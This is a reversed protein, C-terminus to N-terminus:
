HAYDSGSTLPEVTASQLAAPTWCRIRGRDEGFGLLIILQGNIVGLIAKALTEGPAYCFIQDTSKSGQVMTKLLM